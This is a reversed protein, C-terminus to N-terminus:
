VIVFTANKKNCSM